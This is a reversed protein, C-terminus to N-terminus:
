PPAGGAAMAYANKIFEELGGSEMNDHYKTWLTVYLLAAAKFDRLVNEFSMALALGDRSTEGATHFAQAYGYVCPMMSNAAEKAKPNIPLFLDEGYYYYLESHGPPNAKVVEIANEIEASQVQFIQKMTAGVPLQDWEQMAAHVIMLRQTLPPSVTIRLALPSVLTDGGHMIRAVAYSQGLGFPHAATRVFVEQNAKITDIHEPAIMVRLTNIFAQGVRDMSADGTVYTHNKNLHMLGFMAIANLCLPQLDAGFQTHVINAASMEADPIGRATYIWEKNIRTNREPLVGACVGFARIWAGLPFHKCPEMNLGAICSMTYPKLKSTLREKPPLNNGKWADDTMRMNARVGALAGMDRIDFNLGMLRCVMSFLSAVFAEDDGRGAALVYYRDEDWRPATRAPEPAVWAAIAARKEQLTSDMCALDHIEQLTRAGLIRYKQMITDSAAAENLRADLPNIGLGQPLRLQQNQALYQVRVKQEPLDGTGNISILITSMLFNASFEPTFDPGEETRVETTLSMGKKLADVKRRISERGLLQTISTVAAEDAM